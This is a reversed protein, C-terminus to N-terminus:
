KQKDLQVGVGMINPVRVNYINCIGYCVVRKKM